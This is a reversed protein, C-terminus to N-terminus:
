GYAKPGECMAREEARRRVLGPLPKGAQLVWRDMQACAELYKGENLLRAATSRCFAGNGVNFTFSVWADFEHQYMPVPACERVAKEASSADDKLRILGREVSIRDGPKVGKTSGFGITPVDNPTPLYATDRWSEHLAIGILGSGSLSLAAVAVRAGTGWAM